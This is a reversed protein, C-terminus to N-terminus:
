DVGAKTLYRCCLLGALGGGIVLVDTSLDRDLTPFKPLTVTESWLSPM